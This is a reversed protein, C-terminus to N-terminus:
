RPRPGLEPPLVGQNTYKVVLQGNWIRVGRVASFLPLNAQQRVIGTLAEGIADRFDSQRLATVTQTELQRELGENLGQLFGVSGPVNPWYPQFSVTSRVSTPDYSVRRDITAPGLELALSGSTIEGPYDGVYETGTTEFDYEVVFAGTPYSLTADRYRVAPTGTANVDRIEEYIKNFEDPVLSRATYRHDATGSVASWLRVHSANTGHTVRFSLQGFLRRLDPLLASMPVEKTFLPVAPYTVSFDFRRETPRSDAEVNTVRATWSGLAASDGPEVHTRLITYPYDHDTKSAVPTSSEPRFLELRRSTPNPLYTIPDKISTAYCRLEVVGPGRPRFPIDLSQGPLLPGSRTETRPVYETPTVAPVVAEETPVAEAQVSTGELM